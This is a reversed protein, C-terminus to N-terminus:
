PCFWENSEDIQEKTFVKALFAEAIAADEDCLGLYEERTTKVKLCRVAKNRCDNWDDWVNATADNVTKIAKEYEALIKRNSEEIAKNRKLAVAHNAVESESPLAVAVMGLERSPQAFRKDSGYEYRTEGWLPSLAIFAAAADATAFLLGTGSVSYEGKRQIEYFPTTALSVEEEADYQPPVIKVVGKEMLEVDLFAKVQEGTLEAQQRESLNWYRNM